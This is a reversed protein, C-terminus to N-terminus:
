GQLTLITAPDINLKNYLKRAFDMSMEKKGKLLESLRTEHVGLLEALGRQKLKREYMEKELIERLTFPTDLTHGHDIEYQEVLIGVRKIDALNDAADPALNAQILLKETADREQDNRIETITALTTM